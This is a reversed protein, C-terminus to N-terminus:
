HHHADAVVDAPRTGEIADAIALHQEALALLGGQRLPNLIAERSCTRLRRESLGGKDNLSSVRGGRPAATAMIRTGSATAKAKM